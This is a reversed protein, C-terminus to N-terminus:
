ALIKISLDYVPSGCAWDQRCSQQTNRPSLLSSVASRQVIDYLFFFYRSKQSRKSFCLDAGWGQTSTGVQGIDTLAAHHGGETSLVHSDLSGGDGSGGHM